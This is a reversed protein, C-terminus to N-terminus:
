FPLIKEEALLFVAATNKTTLVESNADAPALSSPVIHAKLRESVMWSREPHTSDEVPFPFLLVARTNM